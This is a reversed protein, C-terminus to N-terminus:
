IIITMLFVSSLSFCVNCLHFKFTWWWMTLILTAILQLILIKIWGQVSWKLVNMPCRYMKDMFCKKRNNQSSYTIAIKRKVFCATPETKLHTISSGQPLTLRKIWHLQSRKILSRSCVTMRFIFCLSLLSCPLTNRQGERSLCFWSDTRMSSHNVPSLLFLESISCGKRM